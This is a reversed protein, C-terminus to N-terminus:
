TVFMLREGTIGCAIDLRQLCSSKLWLNATYPGPTRSCQSSQSEFTLPVWISWSLIQCIEGFSWRNRSARSSYKRCRKRELGVTYPLGTMPGSGSRTPGPPPAFDAKLASRRLCKRTALNIGPGFMMTGKPFFMNITMQLCSM